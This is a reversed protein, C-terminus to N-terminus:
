TDKWIIQEYPRIVVPTAGFLTLRDKTGDIGEVTATLVHSKRTVLTPPNTLTMISVPRALHVNPVFWRKTRSRLQQYHLFSRRLLVFCLDWRENISPPMASRATTPRSWSWQQTLTCFLMDHVDQTHPRYMSCLKPFKGPFLYGPLKQPFNGSNFAADIYLIHLM